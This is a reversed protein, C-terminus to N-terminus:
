LCKTALVNNEDFIEISEWKSFDSTNGKLLKLGSSMEDLMKLFGKENEDNTKNPLIQYRNSYFDEFLYTFAIDDKLYDEGFKIFKETDEIKLLYTTGNATVLGSTYSDLNKINGAKHLQYIVRIDSGSFISLLGQYHTHIFGSMNTPLSSTNLDIYPNGDKGELYSFSLTGNLEKFAYGVEKELNVKSLLYEM